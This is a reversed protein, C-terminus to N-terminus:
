NWRSQLSYLQKGLSEYEAKLDKCDSEDIYGLDYAMDIYVRVENCSGNAIRLYRKIEATTRGYGESINAPISVASRRLQAGLEYLEMKPFTQSLKHIRLSLEYGIQYVRLDYFTKIMKGKGVESKKCGVELVVAEAASKLGTVNEARSRKILSSNRM